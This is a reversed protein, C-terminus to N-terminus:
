AHLVAAFIGYHMKKEAATLLVLVLSHQIHVIKTPAQIVVVKSKLYQTSHEFSIVRNYARNFAGKNSVARNFVPEISAFKKHSRM